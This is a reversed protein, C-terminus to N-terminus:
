KAEVYIQNWFAYGEVTRGWIIGKQIATATDASREALMQPATMEAARIANTALEAPLAQLIQRITKM